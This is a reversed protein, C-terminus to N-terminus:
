EIATAWEDPGFNPPDSSSEQQMGAITSNELM